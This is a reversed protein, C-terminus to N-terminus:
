REYMTDSGDRCMDEEDVGEMAGGTEEETVTL